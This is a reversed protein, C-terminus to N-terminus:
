EQELADHKDWVVGVGKTHQLQGLKHGHTFDGRLRDLIYRAQRDANDQIADMLEPPVLDDDIDVEATATVGVGGRFLFYRLCANGFKKSM